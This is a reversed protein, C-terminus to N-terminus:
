YENIIPNVKFSPKIIVRLADLDNYPIIKFNPM